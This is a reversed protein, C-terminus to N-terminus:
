MDIKEIICERFFDILQREEKEDSVLRFCILNKITRSCAVYFLKQNKSKKMLDIEELDYISKFNYKNWFYEDMIVMVNEIGSGKTKHMTIYDSITNEDIYNYYDLVESFKLEDSFLELYFNKKKRKKDFEIFEEESVTSDKEIMRNSTNGGANYLVELQKFREDSKLDELFSDKDSIYQKYSDSKSILKNDFSFRLIRNASLKSNLLADFIRKIKIKDKISKLEFGCKKLKSLVFNYNRNKYASCLEYIEILQIREFVKEIEEKVESYRDNFIKYLVKFGLESSISKNTLMLKKFEPNDASVKAIMKNLTNLYNEKDELNSNNSPKKGYISYYLKVEGKREELTEKNKLALQQILGDNRITNIFDIVKDSCRFNDEKEIKVIKKATIEREVDGIGDDYIGQMSDGFFGITTRNNIPLLNLFIDVIKENTDQYEDILIFNFKDSVIKGLLKHKKFLLSAIHLLEDHGFSLEKFNNYRTENYRVKNYDISKIEELIIKNLIDIKENLDSNFKLPDNDYDRKGTVKSLKEGTTTFLKGSYSGYTKKYKEHEKKKYEREDEGILIEDRVIKEVKFIEFIVEHINKKYDKILDNLFSHITCVIFNNNEGVRGRVEEVAVNTLTICVGKKDPYNQTIYELIQKLSETKGSGAGGQLVFNNFEKESNQNDDIIQKIQEIPRIRSDMEIRRKHIITNGM